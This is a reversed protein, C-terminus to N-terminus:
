LAELDDSLQQVQAELVALQQLLRQREEQWVRWRARQHRREVLPARNLRLREILLEGEPTLGETVGDDRRALHLSLDDRRPHLLRPEGDAPWFDSKFENCAHCAYVLNDFDDSGGRSRPQFHDVTLEAGIEGEEVGCYGCSFGFDARLRDKESRRM